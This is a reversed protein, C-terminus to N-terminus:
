YINCFHLPFLLFPPLISGMFSGIPPPPFFLDRWQKCMRRFVLLADASSPVVDDKTSWRETIPRKIQSTAHLFVVQVIEPPCIFCQRAVQLCTAPTPERQHHQGARQASM